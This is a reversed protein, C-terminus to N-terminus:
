PIRNVEVNVGGTEVNVGGTPTRNVDVDVRGPREVSPREDIRPTVPTVPPASDRRDLERREEARRADELERKEEVIQENGRRAADDVRREQRAIREASDRKVAELDRQEERVDAVADQRARDVDRAANEVSQTCAAFSPLTFIALSFLIRKM